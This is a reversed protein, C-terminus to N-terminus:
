GQLKSVLLETQRVNLGLNLVTELAANIAQTSNLSLLARAHGESIKDELLAQQASEPLNLLRLTNTVAARSKGVRQAIEEHTLSFEDVLLQYARARELANLDERQINEIISYELQEQHTATRVIAPVESLGALRAARWRREGAILNYTDADETQVLILPQLIGHEKISNALDQLSEDDFVKRPQMPNPKIKDISIQVVQNANSSLTEQKWEPILADLGKGLGSKRAM